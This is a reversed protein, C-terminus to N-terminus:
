SETNHLNPFHELSLIPNTLSEKLRELNTELDPIDECTSVGAPSRSYSKPEGEKNYHVEHISLSYGDGDKRALVRYNWSMNPNNVKLSGTWLVDM